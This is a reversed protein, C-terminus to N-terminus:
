SVIIGRIALNMPGVQTGVPASLVWIPGMNAWHVNSDPDPYHSIETKMAIFQEIPYIVKRLHMNPQNCPTSLQNEAIRTSKADM